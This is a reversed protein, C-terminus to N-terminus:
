SDRREKRMNDDTSAEESSFISSIALLVFLVPGDFMLEIPFCLKVTDHFITTSAVKLIANEAKGQAKSHNNGEVEPSSFEWSTFIQFM